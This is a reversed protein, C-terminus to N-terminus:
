WETIWKAKKSFSTYVFDIMEKGGFSIVEGIGTFVILINIIWNFDSAILTVNTYDTIDNLLSDSNFSWKTSIKHHIHKKLKYM